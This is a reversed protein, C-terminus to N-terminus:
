RKDKDSLFENYQIEWPIGDLEKKQIQKENLEYWEQLRIELSKREIGLMNEINKMRSVAIEMNETCIDIYENISGKPDLLDSKIKKAKIKIHEPNETDEVYFSIRKLIKELKKKWKNGEYFWYRASNKCDEIIVKLDNRTHLIKIEKYKEMKEKMYKWRM